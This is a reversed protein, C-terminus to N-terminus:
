FTLRLDESIDRTQRLRLLYNRAVATLEFVTEDKEVMGYELLKLAFSTHVPDGLYKWTRLIGSLFWLVHLLNPKTEGFAKAVEGLGKMTGPDIDVEDPASSKELLQTLEEFTMGNYTTQSPTAALKRLNANEQSLRAVEEALPGINVAESARVWGEVGPRRAFEPLAELIAIKIDRPDRWPRVMRSMVTQRFERLASTYETEIVASGHTKVRDEIHSQEIVVAFVPKGTGIAHEYELHIYSKGAGPDVSGYRGGLILLFVDSEDIWRRITDIQSQDGAAFLEMGAPIHGATLIAEVAAQREARLDTYTSSVFVQLKKPGAM